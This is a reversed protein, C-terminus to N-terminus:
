DNSDRGEINAFIKEINSTVTSYDEGKRYIDRGVVIRKVGADFADHPTTVRSQDDKSSGPLRVGPTNINLSIRNDIISAAEQPSCVIDTMGCKQMLEAYDLVASEVTSNHECSVAHPTKSTLITVACSLTGAERCLTAFDYLLDPADTDKVLEKPSLWTSCAGAMVNLMYPQYELHLKTIELVKSPVEVIKADAFVPIQYKEQVERICELGYKTLFLRDLKVGVRDRPFNDQSLISYLTDKPIGDASWFLVINKTDLSVCRGELNVRPIELNYFEVRCM